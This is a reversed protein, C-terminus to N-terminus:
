LSFSLRLLSCVSVFLSSAAPALSTSLFPAESGSFTDCRPQSASLLALCLTTCRGSLVVRLRAALSSCHVRTRWWHRLAPDPTLVRSHSLWLHHVHICSSRIYTLDTCSNQSMSFCGSLPPSPSATLCSECEFRSEFCEVLV